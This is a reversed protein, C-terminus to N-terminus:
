YHVIILFYSDFIREEGVQKEDHHKMGALTVRVLAAGAAHVERQQVASLFNYPRM